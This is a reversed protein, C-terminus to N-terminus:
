SHWAFLALRTWWVCEDLLLYSSASHLYIIKRTWRLAWTSKVNLHLMNKMVIHRHHADAEGNVMVSRMGRLRMTFVNKSKRIRKHQHKTLLFEDSIWKFDTWLTYVSM